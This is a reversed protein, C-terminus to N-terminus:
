FYHTVVEGITRMIGRRGIRRQAAVQHETFTRGPLVEEVDQQIRALLKAHIDFAESDASRIGIACIPFPQCTAIEHPSPSENAALQSLAHLASKRCNEPFESSLDRFVSSLRRNARHNATGFATCWRNRRDARAI